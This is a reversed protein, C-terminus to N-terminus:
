KQRKEKRFYRNKMTIIRPSILIVMGAILISGTIIVAMPIDMVWQMVM